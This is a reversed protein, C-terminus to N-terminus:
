KKVPITESSEWALEFQDKFFGYWFSDTRPHLKFAPNLDLSKHQYIEVFVRGKPTSSDILSLGFSPLFPILKLEVSGKLEPLDSLLEFLDITPKLRDKYFNDNTVRYSRLCAQKAADSEPNIIIARITAGSKLRKEFVGLNDRITRSLTVGILDISMANEFESITPERQCLFFEHAKPKSLIKSEVSNVLNTTAQSNRDIRDRFKLISLGLLALVALIGASIIKPDVLDFIDLLLVVLVALILLYADIDKRLKSWISIKEM